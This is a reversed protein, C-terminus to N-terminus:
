VRPRRRRAEEPAAMTQQEAAQRRQGGNPGPEPQYEAQKEPTAWGVITFRPTYTRGYQKHEYFGSELRVVPVIKSNGNIPGKLKEEKVKAAIAPVLREMVEQMGGYSTTSYQTQTGTDEGSTCAIKFGVQEGWPNEAGHDALSSRDPKPQNYRVMVEGLKKPARKDGPELKLWCVYGHMITLPHIAWTSGPQVDVNDAGYVWSGDKLMRLYPDFSKPPASQQFVALDADLDAYAALDTSAMTAAIDNSM